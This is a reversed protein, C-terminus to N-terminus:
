NKYILNFIVIIRKKIKIILFIKSSFKEKRLSKVIYVDINEILDILIRNFNNAKLISCTIFLYNFKYYNYYEINKINKKFRRKKLKFFNLKYLINIKKDRRFQINKDKYIKNEKYNNKFFVNKVKLKYLYRINLKCKIIKM